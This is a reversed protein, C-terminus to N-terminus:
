VIGSCSSRYNINLLQAITAPGMRVSEAEVVLDAIERLMPPRGAQCGDGLWGARAASLTAIRGSRM